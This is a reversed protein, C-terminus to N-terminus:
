TSLESLSALITLIAGLLIMRWGVARRVSERLAVLGFALLAPAYFVVVTVYHYDIRVIAYILAALYIPAALALRKVARTGLGFYAALLWLAIAALGASATTAIWLPWGGPSDIKLPFFGHFIAGLFSALALSLFLFVVLTRGLSGKGRTSLLAFVLCEIALGLDTLSVTPDYITM